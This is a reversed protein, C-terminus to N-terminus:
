RGNIREKLRNVWNGRGVEDMLALLDEVTAVDRIDEGMHRECEEVPHERCVRPRREYIGCMGNKGLHVCRGPFELLWSRGKGNPAVSVKTGHYVYFVLDEWDDLSKPAEIEVAAYSCCRGGCGECTKEKKTSM